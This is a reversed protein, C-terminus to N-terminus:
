QLSAISEKLSASLCKEADSPSGPHNLVFIVAITHCGDHHLIIGADNIASIGNETPFGTGTKHVVVDDPKVASPIRSAGTDCASMTRWVFSLNPNDDKHQYFWELLRAMEKASSTNLFSCEKNEMMQRETVRISIGKFGLKHVYQQVKRPNGLEDFLIQCANNDSEQLSLRLLEAISFRRSEETFLKLMPSWTDQMLDAKRVAIEDDLSRGSKEIADAVFLAQPFKVVSFLPCPTDQSVGVSQGEKVVFSCIQGQGFVPTFSLLLFIISLYKNM